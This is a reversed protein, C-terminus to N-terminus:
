LAVYQLYCDLMCEKRNTSNTSHTPMSNTEGRPCSPLHRQNRQTHSIHFLKGDSGHESTALRIPIEQRNRQQRTCRTADMSNTQGTAMEGLSIVYETFRDLLVGKDVMEEWQWVKSSTSGVHMIFIFASCWARVHSSSLPHNKAETNGKKWSEGWVLEVEKIWLISITHSEGCITTHHQTIYFGVGGVILLDNANGPVTSWDNRRCGAYLCDHWEM